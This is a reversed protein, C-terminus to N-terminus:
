LGPPPASPPAGTPASPMIPPAGPQPTQFRQQDGKQREMMARKMMEENQKEALAAM